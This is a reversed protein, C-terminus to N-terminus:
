NEKLKQWVKDLKTWNQENKDLKAWNRRTKDLKTLNQPNDIRGGLINLYKAGNVDGEDAVFFMPQDRFTDCLTNLHLEYLSPLYNRCASESPATHGLQEFM